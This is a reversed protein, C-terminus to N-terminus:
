GAPVPKEYVDDRSAVRMGVRTYLRTAGTTNEADVGLSIRRRGHEALDHFAQRLLAEGLGNRRWARRVGLISVWAVGWRDEDCVQAAVVAGEEDRVLYCLREDLPGNSALWEEFTRPEHGWHDEFSEELTEYVDRDHGPELVCTFGTPWEPAPPVGDLDVTMRYFSRIYRYGRGEILEKGNTDAAATGARVADMGLEASTREAWDLLLCGAGRGQQDPDVFLDAILNPSRSRLTGAGILSGSDDIVGVAGADVREWWYVVDDATPRDTIGSFRLDYDGVIRATTEADDATLPRLSLTV